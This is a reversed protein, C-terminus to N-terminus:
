SQGTGVTVVPLGYWPRAVAAVSTLQNGAPFPTLVTVCSHLGDIDRVCIYMSCSRRRLQVQATSEDDPLHLSLAHQLFM